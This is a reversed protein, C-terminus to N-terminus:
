DSAKALGTARAVRVPVSQSVDSSAVGVGESGASPVAGFRTLLVRASSAAKTECVRLVQEAEVLRNWIVGTGHQNSVKRM